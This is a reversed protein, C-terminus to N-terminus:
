KQDLIQRNGGYSGHLPSVQESNHIMIQLLMHKFHLSLPKLWQPRGMESNHLISFSQSINDDCPLDTFGTVCALHKTPRWVNSYSANTNIWSYAWM